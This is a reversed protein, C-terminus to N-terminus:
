GQWRVLTASLRGAQQLRRCWSHASLMARPSYGTASQGRQPRRSRRMAAGSQAMQWVQPNWVSRGSRGSPTMVGRLMFWLMASM